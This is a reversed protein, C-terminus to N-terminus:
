IRKSPLSSNIIWGPEAWPELPKVSYTAFAAELQNIDESKIQAFIQALVEQDQHTLPINSNTPKSSMM